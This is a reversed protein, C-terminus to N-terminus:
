QASAPIFIKRGVQLDNPNLGPNAGLIQKVSIKVGQQRYAQVIAFITDGNQITYDYGTQPGPPNASATVPPMPAQPRSNSNAASLAQELQTLEQLVRQNDEQRKRDIEQVQAALQQLAQQDALQQASGQSLQSALNNVQGELAELHKEQMAQAAELAELQGNIQDIEQQVASEQARAVVVSFSSILIWVLVKKM